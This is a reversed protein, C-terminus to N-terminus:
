ACLAIIKDVVHEPLDCEGYITFVTVLAAVEAVTTLELDFMRDEIRYRRPAQVDSYWRDREDLALGAPAREEVIAEWQRFLCMIKSEPGPQKGFAAEAPVAGALAPITATLALAPAAKLAARRTIESM